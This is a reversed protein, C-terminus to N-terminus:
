KENFSFIKKKKRTDNLINPNSVENKNNYHKLQYTRQGEEPTEHQVHTGVCFRLSFGKNSGCSYVTEISNVM